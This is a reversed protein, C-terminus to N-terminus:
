RARNRGMALWALPGLLGLAAPEPIVTYQIDAWDINQNGALLLNLQGDQLLSLNLVPHDATFELTYVRSRISEGDRMVDFSMPVPVRPEGLFGLRNEASDVYIADQATYDGKPHLALTVVASTIRETTPNILGDFTFPVAIGSTVTDFGTIPHNTITSVAAQWDPDIHPTDAADGIEYNDYDGVVYHRVVEGRHALRDALQAEFLSTYAEGNVWLTVPQGTNNASTYAPYNGPVTNNSSHSRVYGTSGILWNQDTPPNQVYYGQAAKSNWIVMNAGRWGHGTGFNGGNQAEIYTNTTINDYLTGTTWQQHPGSASTSNTGTGRLFVNPGRSPYNGVFEHRANVSELNQMLTYQGNILFPYRRSGTIQGIPESNRVTDVTVNRSRDGVQVSAFILDVSAVNRVWGDEVNQMVIFSHAHNEQGTPGTSVKGDGRLNEIGINTLRDFTYHSIIAGYQTSVGDVTKTTSADGYKSRLITPLPADLMIRNTVPDIYTITREYEQTGPKGGPEWPKTNSLKGPFTEADMGIDRLWQASNPRHVVIRDGVSFGETSDVSLGYTGAPVTKDTVFATSGTLARREPSNINIINIQQSGTYTLHTAGPGATYGPGAGRLIIGGVNIQVSNSIRFTGGSLQVVARYGNAQLPQAAAQAIAANILGLSDGDGPAPSVHFVPLNLQAVDPLPEDSNKYGARSFNSIRSGLHDAGYVLRGSDGSQVWPTTQGLALTPLSIFATAALIAGNRQFTRVSM